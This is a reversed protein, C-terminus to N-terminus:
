RGSAHVFFSHLDGERTVEIDNSLIPTSALEMAAHQALQKAYYTGTRGHLVLGGPLKQVRLDRVRSGLRRHLLGELQEEESVSSELLVEASM